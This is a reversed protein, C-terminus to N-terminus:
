KKVETLLNSLNSKSMIEALGSVLNQGVSIGNSQTQAINSITEILKGVQDNRLEALGKSKELKEMLEHVQKNKERFMKFMEIGKEREEKCEKKLANVQNNLETIKKQASVQKATNASKSKTSM